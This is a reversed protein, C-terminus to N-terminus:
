TINTHTCTRIANTYLATGTATVLASVFHYLKCWDHDTTAPSGGLWTLTLGAVHIYM